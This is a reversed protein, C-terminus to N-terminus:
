SAERTDSDLLWTAVAVDGMGRMGALMPKIIKRLAKDLGRRKERWAEAALRYAERESPTHNFSFSPAADMHAALASVAAKLDEREHTSLTIRM